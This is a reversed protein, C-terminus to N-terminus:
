QPGRTRRDLGHEARGPDRQVEVLQLSRHVVRVARLNELREDVEVAATAAVHDDDDVPTVIPQEIAHSARRDLEVLEAIAERDGCANRLLDPAFGEGPRKSCSESIASRSGCEASSSV